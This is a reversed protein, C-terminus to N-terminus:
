GHEEKIRFGFTDAYREFEKLSYLGVCPIAGRLEINGAVLKRAIILASITPIHPGTGDDAYLIWKSRAKSGQADEGAVSVIMGGKDTGFGSFLKSVAVILGTLRSWNKVLGLRSIHAMGVLAFHLIRLELGAQFSVRERVAYRKPFLELDPVDVNALWRKGVSDGFDLQKPDMWGRASRWEGGSFVDFPHGTYSLVGKVTATGREAKNGPAIAIDISDIRTYNASLNDLVVSSLGPVTSAGSVILVKKSMADQNLSEIDCVFRRDDALDVYHCGVNICAKPIHYNQNQFPGSANIVLFPAMEILRSEFEDSDIDIGCPILKAASTKIEGCRKSAKGLSRGAIVLVLDPIRALDGVIRKGFNGYGGLVVVTRM